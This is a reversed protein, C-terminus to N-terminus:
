KSYETNLVSSIWAFSNPFSPPIHQRTFFSNSHLQHPSLYLFSRSCSVNDGLTASLVLHTSIHCSPIVSQVFPLHVDFPCPNDTDCHSFLFAYKLHFSCILLKLIPLITKIWTSHNHYLLPHYAFDIGTICHVHFPLAADPYSSLPVPLNINTADTVLSSSLHLCDTNRTDSVLSSVISLNTLLAMPLATPLAMPLVTPLVMILATSLTIPLDMPLKM